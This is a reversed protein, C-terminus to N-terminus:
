KQTIWCAQRCLAEAVGIVTGLPLLARGAISDAQPSKWAFVRVELPLRVVVDARCAEMSRRGITASGHLSYLNGLYSVRYASVCKVRAPWLLMLRRSGSSGPLEGADTVSLRLTARGLTM